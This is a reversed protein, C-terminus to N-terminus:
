QTGGYRCMGSRCRRRDATAGTRRRGTNRTASALTMGLMVLPLVLAGDMMIPSFAASIIASSLPTFSAANAPSLRGPWRHRIPSTSPRLRDETLVLRGPPPSRPRHGRLAADAEKPLSSRGPRTSLLWQRLDPRVAPMPPNVSARFRPAAQATGSRMRYARCPCSQWM